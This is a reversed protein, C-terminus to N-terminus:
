KSEAMNRFDKLVKKIAERSFDQKDLWRNQASFLNALSASQSGVFRAGWIAEGTRTSILYVSFEMAAGENHVPEGSRSKHWNTYRTVTGILVADFKDKSYPLDYGLESAPKKSPASKEVSNSAQDPTTVIKMQFEDLMRAPSIVSLEKLRELQTSFQNAVLQGAEKDKGLGHTKNEFYIVGIRKAKKFSQADFVKSQVQNDPDTQLLQYYYSPFRGVKPFKKLYEPIPHPENIDDTLNPNNSRLENPAIKHLPHATTSPNPNQQPYPFADDTNIAWASGSAFVLGAAGIMYLLGSIIARQGSTM